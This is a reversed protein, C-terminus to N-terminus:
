FIEILVWYNVILDSMVTESERVILPFMQM